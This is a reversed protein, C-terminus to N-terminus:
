QVTKPQRRYMCWGGASAGVAILLLLIWVGVSAAADLVMLGHVAWHLWGGAQIVIGFTIALPFPLIVPFKVQLSCGILNKRIASLPFTGKGMALIFTPTSM